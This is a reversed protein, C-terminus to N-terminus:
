KVPAEIADIAQQALHKTAGDTGQAIKRLAPLAEKAAPGIHGLMSIATQRYQVMPDEVAALLIPMGEKLDGEIQWLTMAARLRTYIDADKLCDRVLPLASKALPGLDGLAMMAANRFGREMPNKFTALLKALPEPNSPEIRFWIGAPEMGYTRTKVAEKITPLAPKAANPDIRALARICLWRFNTNEHDLQKVLLPVAASADKGYGALLELGQNWNGFQNPNSRLNRAELYTAVAPVVVKADGKIKKLASFATYSQQDNLGQLLKALKPAAAASAAPGIQSLANAASTVLYAEKDDLLEVLAPIAERADGRMRTVVFIVQNRVPNNPEKLLPLLTAMTDKNDRDIAWLTEAIRVRWSQNPDQLLPRLAEVAKAKDAQIAGLASLATYRLGIDPDNLTAVLFLTVKEGGAGLPGLCVMAAQRCGRDPDNLAAEIAPLAGMGASGIQSLAHLALLRLRPDKDELLKSLGPVADKGLRGLVRTLRQQLPTNNPNEKCAALLGPVVGQGLTALINEIQFHLHYPLQDNKFLAVLEEQVARGHDKLRPVVTLAQQATATDRLAERLVPILRDTNPGIDWLIEAATLRLLPDADKLLEAAIPEVGKPRPTLYQLIRVADRRAALDGRKVEVALIPLLPEPKFTARWYAEIAAVRTASDEDNFLAKIAKAVDDPVPAPLVQGFMKCVQRRVNTNKHGLGKVLHPAVTPGMRQLISTAMSNPYVNADELMDILAPAIAVARPGHQNLFQILITLTGVNATKLAEAFPEAPLPETTQLTALSMAARLRVRAVPDKQRERLAKTVDPINARAEGLVLAAEERVLADMNDLRELWFRIPQDHLKPEAAPPAQALLSGAFHMALTLFAGILLHRKGLPVLRARTAPGAKSFHPCDM